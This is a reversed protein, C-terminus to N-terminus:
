SRSIIFVLVRKPTLSFHYTSELPILFSYLVVFDSNLYIYMFVMKKWKCLSVWYLPLQM